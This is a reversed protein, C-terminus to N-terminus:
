LVYKTVRFRYSDVYEAIIICLSKSLGFSQITLNLKRIVLKRVHNWIVCIESLHFKPRRPINVGSEILLTFQQLIIGLRDVDLPVITGRRSPPMIIESISVFYYKLVEDGFRSKAGRDLLWKLMNLRDQTHDRLVTDIPKDCSIAGGDVLHDVSMEKREFIGKADEYRPPKLNVLFHNLKLEYITMDGCREESDNLFEQEVSTM